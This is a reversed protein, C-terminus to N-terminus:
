SATAEFKSVAPEGPAGTQQESEDNRNEPAGMGILRYATDVRVNLSLFIVALTSFFIFVDCLMIDGRQYRKSYAAELGLRQEPRLRIKGVVQALGTIGAPSDFRANWNPYKKLLRVNEAPLPRNGILSMGHFIVNIMQPVEVIQVRELFRGIPTYVECTRPIDLYGDKMFRERLRYKPDTADRVMTRFKLIPITRDATVHRRSVYFIPRGELIWILLAVLLLFPSACVLISAALIVDIVRKLRQQFKL